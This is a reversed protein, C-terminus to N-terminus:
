YGRGLDRSRCHRGDYDIKLDIHRHKFNCVVCRPVGSGGSPGHLHFDQMEDDEGTMKVQFFHYIYSMRFVFVLFHGHTLVPYAKSLEHHCSSPKLLKFPKPITEQSAKSLCTALTDAKRWIWFSDKCISLGTHDWSAVSASESLWKMRWRKRCWLLMLPSSTIESASSSFFLIVCCPITRASWEQLKPFPNKPYFWKCCITTEPFKPHHFYLIQKLVAANKYIVPEHPHVNFNLWVPSTLM